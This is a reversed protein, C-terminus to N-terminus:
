SIEPKLILVKKQCKQVKYSKKPGQKVKMFKKCRKPGKRHKESSKSGKQVKRYKELSKQVLHVVNLIMVM